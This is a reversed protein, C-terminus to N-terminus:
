GHQLDDEVLECRKVIPDTELRAVILDRRGRAWPEVTSDWQEGPIYLLDRAPRPREIGSFYLKEPGEHYVIEFDHEGARVFNPSRYEVWYGRLRRRWRALLVGAVLILVVALVVAFAMRSLEWLGFALVGLAWALILWSGWGSFRQTM